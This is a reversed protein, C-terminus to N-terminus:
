RSTGDLVSTSLVERLGTVLGNQHKGLRSCLFFVVLCGIKVGVSQSHIFFIFLINQDNFLALIFRVCGSNSVMYKIKGKQTDFCDGRLM